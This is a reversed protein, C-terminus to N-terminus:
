RSQAPARVDVKRCSYPLGVFQVSTETSHSRGSPHRSAWFERQWPNTTVLLMGVVNPRASAIDTRDIAFWPRIPLRFGLAISSVGQRGRASNVPSSMRLRVRPPCRGPARCRDCVSRSSLPTTQGAGSQSGHQLPHSEAWAIVDHGMAFPAPPRRQSYSHRHAGPKVVDAYVIEAERIPCAILAASDYAILRAFLDTPRHGFGSRGAGRTRINRSYAAQHSSRGSPSRLVAVAAAWFVQAASREITM